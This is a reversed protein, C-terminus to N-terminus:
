DMVEIIEFKGSKSLPIDDLIEFRYKMDSFNEKLIGSIIIMGEEKTVKRNLRFQFLIEDRNKDFWIKYQEIKDIYDILLAKKLRMWFHLYNLVRGDGLKILDDSRGMIDGIIQSNRKCKCKDDIVKVIDGTKYRIFPMVDNFLNTVALDGFEEGNIVRTNIIEAIVTTQFVHFQGCEPCTYTSTPAEMCGFVNIIRTQFFGELIDRQHSHLEGASSLLFKPKYNIGSEELYNALAHFTAPNSAIFGPKEKELIKKINGHSEFLSVSRLLGMKRMFSKHSKKEGVWIEMGKDYPKWGFQRMAHSVKLPSLLEIRAPMKVQFPKGTSGSTPNIKTGPIDRSLIYDEYGNERCIAKEIVPLKRFDELSKIKLDLVGAKEYLEKYFPIQKARNFIKQFADLQYKEIKQRSWKEFHSIAWYEKLLFPIYRIKDIV